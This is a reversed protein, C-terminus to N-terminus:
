VWHGLQLAISVRGVSESRSAPSGTQKTQLSQSMSHSVPSRVGSTRYRSRKLLNIWPLKFRALRVAINRDMGLMPPPGRRGIRSNLKLILNSAQITSFLSPRKSRLKLSHEIQAFGRGSRIKSSGPPLVIESEQLLIGM